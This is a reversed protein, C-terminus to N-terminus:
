NGLVKFEVRRNIERGEANDDNSAIPKTEGYGVSKVRRADIGKSTLFNKVANARSQSLQRNYEKPGVSDTHGSIEVQMGTNQKLMTELKNLENYSEDKFTAKAFDFYINRLVSSVGVKLKRLEVTISKTKAKESAGEIRVSQNQFIYGEKEVSLRYDKASKEKISFEYAGDGAPSFGVAINDKFGSMKVRADLPIKSEADVVNVLYKFPQLEIKKPVEKKPKEKVPEVVPVIIPDEKKPNEKVPEVIPEEKKPEEKKPEEKKPEEKKPENPVTVIYIDQYGMGEDRVSAYYARKGDQTSVYNMDDDPTNIPFGLNEPESWENKNPDLLVSKYIDYGGMGKRGRSSFYLTKGDYDIFPNDDNLETNITSGLNKVKSWEGNSDKTCVYIDSGGFGGPRESSFYLIDGDKTVSVSEERFTSNIIGPLAEPVGWSDDALRESVYIDGLGEDKYIYLMKGDASLALNSDNFKLNVIPGINKARSWKGGSSNSIFIDEFPKNDDAVNENLNGDQRRTTFVLETENENLVPGYDDFESNIAKGINVISFNKPNAVFEKGNNCEQIKRDVEKLDVKDKGQYNPKSLLKERYQIYYVLAKDFELGYQYSRGIWFDLDFRYDPNQRSIRLFFKNALDKGITELHFHGAEFNAKINTTDSDAAQVWNFRADDMARTSEMILAANEMYQRSTEKDQPVQAWSSFACLVTLFVLIKRISYM